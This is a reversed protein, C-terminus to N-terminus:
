RNEVVRVVVSQINATKPPVALTGARTQRYSEQLLAELPNNVEVNGRTSVISSLNVPEQTAVIKFMENGFPPQFVFLPNLVIEAGAKIFYEASTENQAPALINVENNANINLIQFFAGRSGRNAVKLKFVDGQKFTLQGGVEKDQISLISDTVYSRGSKKVTVPVLSLEINITQDQMELERLMEGRIFGKIANVLEGSVLNLPEDSKLARQFLLQDNKTYCVLKDTVVEIFFDADDKNEELTQLQEIRGKLDKVLERAVKPNIQVRKVKGGLAMQEIFIWQNSIDKESIIGNLFVECELVGANQVVGQWNAGVGNPSVTGSPYFGVRTNNTLGALTGAHILVTSDDLIEGITFYPTQKVISGRFLQVDVEGEIQPSQYPAIKLMEGKIKDFLARYTVATDTQKLAKSFAYSLSGFSNGAEDRYEYNLQNASAGSILVFSSLHENDEGRSTFENELGKSDPKYGEEAFPDGTGRAPANGRTGTGSHCADLIVLLNGKPGLKRQLSTLFTQLEDDRFHNEGEYIGKRFVRQADYPIISEDFGDLEDNNDDQIQQGHGSYHVVVIDGPGVRDSLDTLAKVMGQRTAQGDTVVVINDSGFGQGLLVDRILPVDSASSIKTWRGEKPYDGVAIILAHKQQASILPVSLIYLLILIVSTKGPFIKRSLFRKYRKMIGIAPM